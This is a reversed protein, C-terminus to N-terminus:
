RCGSGLVFKLPRTAEDVRWESEDRGGFDIEDNIIMNRIIQRAEEETEAEIYATDWHAGNSFSGFEYITMEM